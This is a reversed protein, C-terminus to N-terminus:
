VKEEVYTPIFGFIVANNEPTDLVIPKSDLDQEFRIDTSQLDRLYLQVSRDSVIGYESILVPTDGKAELSDELVQLNTILERLNM